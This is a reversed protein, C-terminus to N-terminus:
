NHRSEEIALTRVARRRRGKAIAHGRVREHDTRDDRRDENRERDLVRAPAQPQARGAIPGGAGVRRPDGGRSARRERRYAASTPPASAPAPPACSDSATPPKEASM